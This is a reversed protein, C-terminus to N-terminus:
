QGPIATGRAAITAELWDLLDDTVHHVHDGEAGESSWHRDHRIWVTTMGLAHAPVLNKAMDEFMAASRPDLDHRRIFSRYAAIDPKPVYDAAVIDFIGEFHHSVGLRDLVSEAHRVSGNTFILKRGELAHLARDLAPSPPVVSHDIAHCHALFDHPDVGHHDMLGRLTTGHSLFFGKQIERSRTEDCGLLETIFSRMKDDIQAFLDCSAPYLTNDLDFVWVDVHDIAAPATTARAPGSTAMRDTGPEMQQGAIGGSVLASASGLRLCHNM